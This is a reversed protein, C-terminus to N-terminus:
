SNGGGSGSRVSAKYTRYEEWLRERLDPDEENMAAERLQRAIIDDDSGDGVDSPVADRDGTGETRGTGAGEGAMGGDDRGGTTGGAQPTGSDGSENGGPPQGDGGGGGDGEGGGPGSGSTGGGSQLAAQEDLREQEDLLLGDFDELARDLEGDLETAKEDATSSGSPLSGASSGSM